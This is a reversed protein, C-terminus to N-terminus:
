QFCTSFSTNWFRRTQVGYLLLLSNTILSQFNQTLYLYGQFALRESIGNQHLNSGNQSSNFGLKELSFELTKFITKTLSFTAFCWITVASNQSLSFLFSRWCWGGGGDTGWSDAQASTLRATCPIQKRLSSKGPFLSQDARHQSWRLVKWAPFRWNRCCGCSRSAASPQTVYM